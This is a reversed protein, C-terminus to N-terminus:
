IPLSTATRRLVTSRPEFEAGPGILSELWVHRKPLIFCQQEFQNWSMGYFCSAYRIGFLM